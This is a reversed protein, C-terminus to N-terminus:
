INENLKDACVIKMFLAYDQVDSKGFNISHSSTQVGDNRFVAQYHTVQRLRCVNKMTNSNTRQINCVPTILQVPNPCICTTNASSQFDNRRYQSPTDCQLVSAASCECSVETMKGIKKIQAYSIFSQAKVQPRQDSIRPSSNKNIDSESCQCSADATTNSNKKSYYSVYSRTTAQATRYFQHPTDYQKIDAESCQCSVDVKPKQTKKSFFSLLPKTNSQTYQQITRQSQQEQVHVPKMTKPVICNCTPATSDTTTPTVCSHIKKDLLTEKPCQCEIGGKLAKSPPKIKRMNARRHDYTMCNKEGPCMADQIQTPYREHVYINPKAPCNVDCLLEAKNSKPSEMQGAYKEITLFGRDCTTDISQRKSCIQDTELQIAREQENPGKQIMSLGQDERAKRILDSIEKSKKECTAMECSKLPLLHMERLFNCKEKRTCNPDCLSDRAHSKIEQVYDMEKNLRNQECITHSVEQGAKYEQKSICTDARTEVKQSISPVREREMNQFNQKLRFNKDCCQQVLQCPETCPVQLKQVKPSTVTNQLIEEVTKCEPKKDLTCKRDCVGIPVNTPGEQVTIVDIVNRTINEHSISTMSRSKVVSKKTDIAENSIMTANSRNPCTPPTQYCASAPRTLDQPHLIFQCSATPSKSKCSSDRANQNASKRKSWPSRMRPFRRTTDPPCPSCSTGRLPEQGIQQAESESLYECYKTDLWSAFDTLDPTARNGQERVENLDQTYWKFARAFCNKNGERKLSGDHPQLQAYYVLPHGM